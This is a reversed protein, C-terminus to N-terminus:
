DVPLVVKDGDMRAAKIRARGELATKWTESADQAETWDKVIEPIGSTCAEKPFCIMNNSEGLGNWADRDNGFFNNDNYPNSIHWWCRYDADFLAQLVASSGDTRDNEIFIPPRFRAITEAAGALVRAEMAEVDIKLFDLKTLRYSDLTRVDVEEVGAHELALGAFNEKSTYDAPALFM